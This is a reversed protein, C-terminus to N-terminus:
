LSSWTQRKSKMSVEEASGGFGTHFVQGSYSTFPDSFINSYVTFANFLCTMFFSVVMFSKFVPKNLYLHM